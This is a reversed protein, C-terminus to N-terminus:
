FKFRFKPPKSSKAESDKRMVNAISITSGQGIPIELKNSFELIERCRRRDRKLCSHHYMISLVNRITNKDDMELFLELLRHCAEVNDMALFINCFSTAQRRILLRLNGHKLFLTHAHQQDSFWPSTFAVRWILLLFSHDDFLCVYYEALQTLIILTAESKKGVTDITIDKLLVLVVKPENTFYQARFQNSAEKLNGKYWISATFYPLMWHQTSQHEKVADLMNPDKRFDFLLKELSYRSPKGRRLIEFVM